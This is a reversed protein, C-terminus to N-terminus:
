EVLVLLASRRYLHAYKALHRFPRPATDDIIMEKTGMEILLKAITYHDQTYAWEAPNLWEDDLKNPDAGWEVLM